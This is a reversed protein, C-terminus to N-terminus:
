AVETPSVPLRITFTSGKGRESEVDVSGGHASVIHRVIPLGLGCGGGRRSLRQDAQYFREFIRKQARPSLGIGHDRVAFCVQGSQAGATLSIRQEEPSFKDANDLLNILASVMADRDVDLAPLAEPIEVSLQRGSAQWRDQLAAVARDVVQRASVKGRELQMRGREMRSFTLFSEVLRSLRRNEAGILDLYERTKGPDLPDDDLLTDVLLRISSLPTKLEHSVNSLLDNKLRTLRMQSAVRAAVLWALGFIAAVLLVGAWRYTAIQRRSATEFVTTGELYLALRWGALAGGLDLDVFPQQETVEVGAPLIEFATGEPSDQLEAVTQMGALVSAEEYLGVVQGDASALRWTAPLGSPQLRAPAAPPPSLDLYRAALDEAALLRRLPKALAELLDLRHLLFRRQSSPLLPEDYSALRQRLGGLAADLDAPEERQQLLRSALLLADPAILRGQADQSAAFRPQTFRTTALDIAAAVEGSKVLARLRGQLARGALHEDGARDALKGWAIAAEPHRDLRELGEAASWATALEALRIRPALAPAPYVLEGQADFIIASDTLSQQACRAFTAADRSGEGLSAARRRWFDDIAQQLGVLEAQYVQSLRQRVAFRENRVAEGMFWLVGATPLLVVVSLLAFVSWPGLGQDTRWLRVWAM